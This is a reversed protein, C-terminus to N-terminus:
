AKSFSPLRSQSHPPSPRTLEPVSKLMKVNYKSYLRWDHADKPLIRLWKQAVLITSFWSWRTRNITDFVFVGGPKLVRYIEGLAAHLDDLHELVDSSIVGTISSDAYPLSDASRYRTNAGRKHAASVWM